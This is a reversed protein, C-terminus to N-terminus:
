SEIVEFTFYEAETRLQQAARYTTFVINALELREAYYDKTLRERLDQNVEEEEEAEALKEEAENDKLLEIEETNLMSDSESAQIEDPTQFQQAMDYIDEKSIEGRLVKNRFEVVKKDEESHEINVEMILSALNELPINAASMEPKIGMVMAKKDAISMMYEKQDEPLAGEEIKEEIQNLVSDHMTQLNATSRVLMGSFPEPPNEEAKEKDKKYQELWPEEYYYRWNRYHHSLSKASLHILTGGMKAISDRKEQSPDRDSVHYFLFVNEYIKRVDGADTEKAV